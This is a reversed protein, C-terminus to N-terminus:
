TPFLLIRWWLFFGGGIFLEGNIAFLGASVVVQAM